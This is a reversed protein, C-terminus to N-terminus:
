YHKPITFCIKNLRGMENSEVFTGVIRFDSANSISALGDTLGIGIESKGESLAKAVEGTGGAFDKINFHNLAYKTFLGSDIIIHIPAFHIDQVIELALNKEMDEQM